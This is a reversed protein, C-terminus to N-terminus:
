DKELFAVTADVYLNWGIFNNEGDPEKAVQILEIARCTQGAKARM